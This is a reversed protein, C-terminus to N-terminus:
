LVEPSFSTGGSQQAVRVTTDPARDSTSASAPDSNSTSTSARIRALQPCCQTIHLQARSLVHTDSRVSM